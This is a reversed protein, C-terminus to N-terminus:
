CHAYICSVWTFSLNVLKAVCMAIRLMWMCHFTKGLIKLFANAEADDFDLLIEKHAKAIEYNKHHSKVNWVMCHQYYRGDQRNLLSRGCAM